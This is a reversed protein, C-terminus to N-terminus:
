IVKSFWLTLLQVYIERSTQDRIYMVVLYVTTSVMFKYNDVGMVLVSTEKKDEYLM